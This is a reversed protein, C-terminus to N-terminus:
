PKGRWEDVVQALRFADADLYWSGGFLRRECVAEVAALVRERESAIL